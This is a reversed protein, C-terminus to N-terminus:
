KRGSIVAREIFVALREAFGHGTWKAAILAKRGAHVSVTSVSAQIAKALEEANEPSVLTVENGDRIVDSGWWGATKTIVVPAGCMMAQMAVSQGSPQLSEKLPVVVCAATQYLERLGEDSVANEKWDGRRWHVNTPLNDPADLRTIVTLNIKPLIRAAEVLTAYDRRGDNGVALVGSRNGDTSPPIWFTDDVGFWGSEIGLAEPKFRRRIEAEESDAFLVAHMRRMLHATIAKRLNSGIPFNVAGCLIGVLPKKFLGLEKWLALGFSIETATAVVVDYGELKPLLRRTRAIWAASTRPPVLKGLLRGAILGTLPDVPDSDLELCDVSWGLRSSLERAGYFFDSPGDTGRLHRGGAYVFAVKVM